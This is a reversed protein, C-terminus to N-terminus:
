IQNIVYNVIVFKKGYEDVTKINSNRTKPIVSHRSAVEPVNQIDLNRLLLRSNKRYSRNSPDVYPSQEPPSYKIQNLIQHQSIPPARSSNSVSRISNAKSSYAGPESRRVDAKFRRTAMDPDVDKETQNIHHMFNYGSSATQDNGYKEKTYRRTFPLRGLQAALKEQKPLTRYDIM